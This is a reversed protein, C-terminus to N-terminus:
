LQDQILAPDGRYQWRSVLEKTWDEGLRALAEAVMDNKLLGPKNAALCAYITEGRSLGGICDTNGESLKVALKDLYDLQSSGM